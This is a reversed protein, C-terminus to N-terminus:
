FRMYIFLIPNHQQLKRLWFLVATSKGSGSAGVAILHSDASAYIPAKIGMNTYLLYDFGLMFKKDTM